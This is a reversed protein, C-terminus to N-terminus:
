YIAKSNVLINLSTYQKSEVSIKSPQNYQDFSPVFFGEYAEVLLVYRGVKVAKKFYGKNDTEIVLHPKQQVSRCWQGDLGVLDEKKLAKYLYIKGVMPRGKSGGGKEIGMQNGKVERLSGEIGQKPSGFCFFLLFSFMWIKM